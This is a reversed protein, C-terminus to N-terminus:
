PLVKRMLYKTRNKIVCSSVVEFGISKYLNLASTNSSFAQLYYEFINRRAFEIEAAAILGKGIGKGEVQSDVAIQVLENNYQPYRNKTIFKQFGFKIFPILISGHLIVVFINEIFFRKYYQNKDTSCFIFGQVSGRESKEVLLITSDYSCIERYFFALFEISCESLFGINNLRKKYISGIQMFDNETPLCHM